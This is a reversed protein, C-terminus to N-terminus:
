AAKAFRVGRESRIRCSERRLMWAPAKPDVALGAVTVRADSKGAHTWFPAEHRIKEYSAPRQNTLRKGSMQSTM